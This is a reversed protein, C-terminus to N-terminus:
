TAAFPMIENSKIASFYEETDTHTYWMKIWEYTSSCKPQKWIKAIKFLAAIFMITCTDKHILSKEPYIGMSPITQDYPLQIQLKKLFM